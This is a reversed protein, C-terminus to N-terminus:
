EAAPLRYHDYHRQKQLYQRQAFGVWCMLVSLVLLLLVIYPFNSQFDRYFITIRGDINDVLSDGLDFLAGLFPHTELSREAESCLSFPSDALQAKLHANACPPSNLYIRALSQQSKRLVVFSAYKGAQSVFIALIIGGLSLPLLSTLM